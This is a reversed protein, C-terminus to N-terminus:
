LYHCCTIIVACMDVVDVFMVTFQVGVQQLPMAVSPTPYVCQTVAPADRRGHHMEEWIPPPGQGYAQM